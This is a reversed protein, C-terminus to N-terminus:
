EFQEKLRRLTPFTGMTIITSGLVKIADGYSSTLASPIGYRLIFANYIFYGSISILSGIIMAILIRLSSKNKETILGVVYGVLGVTIFTIPVYSTWGSLLDFLAMGVGGAILGVSKGFLIAIPFLAIYGLHILGGQPGFFPFGIFTMLTVNATLQSVLALKKTSIKM